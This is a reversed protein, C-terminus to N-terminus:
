AKKKKFLYQKLFNGIELDLTFNVNNIVTMWNHKIYMPSTYFSEKSVKVHDFVWTDLKAADQAGFDESEAAYCFTYVHDGTAGAFVICISYSVVSLFTKKRKDTLFVPVTIYLLM